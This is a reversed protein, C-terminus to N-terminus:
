LGHSFQHATLLQAVATRFAEGESYFDMVAARFGLALHYIGFAPQDM